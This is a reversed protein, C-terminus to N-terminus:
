LLAKEESTIEAGMELAAKVVPDHNDAGIDDVARKLEWLLDVKMEDAIKSWTPLHTVQKDLWEKFADTVFWARGKGKPESYFADTAAFLGFLRTAETRIIDKLRHYSDAAKHSKGYQGDVWPEEDLPCHFLWAAYPNDNETAESPKDSATPVQAPPKSEIPVDRYKTGDWLGAYIDAAVGLMKMATSLADTVAMKYGEDNAHLGQGEKEILKSGGCGPIADSWEAREGTVQLIFVNVQAFAFLQGDSAPESWVNVIDYKWGVGCVGFQETMAKYRWQPNIDTKGKLRGGQITKLADPPPQKLSNYIDLNM